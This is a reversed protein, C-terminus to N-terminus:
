GSIEKQPFNSFLLELAEHFQSSETRPMERLLVQDKWLVRASACGILAAHLIAKSDDSTIAGSYPNWTGRSGVKVDVYSVLIATHENNEGVAQLLANVHSNILGRSLQPAKERIRGYIGPERGNTQRAELVTLNRTKVINEAVTYIRAELAEGQYDSASLPEENDIREFKLVPRLILVTSDPAIEMNTVPGALGRVPKPAACSILILISTVAMALVTSRSWSVRVAKRGCSSNM